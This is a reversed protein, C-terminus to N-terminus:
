GSREKIANEVAQVRNRLDDIESTNQNILKMAQETVELRRRIDNIVNKLVDVDVRLKGVEDFIAEVKEEIRPIAQTAEVVIQFKDEISELM